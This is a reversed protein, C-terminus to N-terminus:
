QQDRIVVVGGPRHALLAATVRASDRDFLYKILLVGPM